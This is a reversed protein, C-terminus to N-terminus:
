VNLVEWFSKPLSVNAPVGRFLPAIDSAKYGALGTGIATVLFTLEIHATAYEIFHEVHIAIDELPLTRIDSDKTSIGYTQGCVPGVGHHAGFALAAKAAGAGHRFAENSGFVFVENPKLTTINDPTVNM